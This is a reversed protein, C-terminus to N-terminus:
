NSAYLEVYISFLTEFLLHVDVQTLISRETKTTVFINITRDHFASRMCGVSGVLCLNSGWLM